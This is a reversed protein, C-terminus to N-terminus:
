TEFPNDKDDDRYNLLKKNFTDRDALWEKDAKEQAVRKVEMEEPTLEKEIPEMIGDPRMFSIFEAVLPLPYKCTDIVHNVAKTLEYDTFNHAKIRECLIDYFGESLSPYVKHIKGM